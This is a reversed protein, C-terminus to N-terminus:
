ARDLDLYITNSFTVFLPQYRRQQMLSDFRDDREHRGKTLIGTEACLLHPRWKGFDWAELLQYDLGEVDVSAFDPADGPFHQALLDDIGVVPVTIREAPKALGQEQLRESWEESLTSLGDMDMVFLDLTGGGKAAVGCNVVTDLPRKRRQRACIRPNADVVVGSSGTRYFLFTNSHIVPDNAGLDLYRIKRKGITRFYEMVSADEGFQAFSSRSHVKLDILRQRYYARDESPLAAYRNWLALLSM